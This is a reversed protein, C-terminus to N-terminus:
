FGSVVNGDRRDCLNKFLTKDMNLLNTAHVSGDVLAINVTGGHHYSSFSAYTMGTSDRWANLDAEAADACAIYDPHDKYSHRRHAIESCRVMAASYMPWNYQNPDGAGMTSHVNGVWETGVPRIQQGESFRREGIFFTNSTGDTVDRFQRSNNIGFMGYNKTKDISYTGSNYKIFNEPGWVGVYNGFSEHYNGNGWQGSWVQSPCSFKKWNGSWVNQAPGGFTPSYTEYLATEEMFPLIFVCWSYGSYQENGNADLAPLGNVIGPPFANHTDAYNHLALAIQKFNNKCVARQAAARAQQVAPLLIAVLVAIIAIVVLLEILTFGSRSRM